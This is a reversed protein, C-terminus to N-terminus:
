QHLRSLWISHLIMHFLDYKVPKTNWLFHKKVERVGRGLELYRQQPISMLIKKLRPVDKEPVTVSFESWNFVQFLPPVFNDSILVPVCDYYIAEIVRPSFVEYGRACICYKSNRMYHVYPSMMTPRNTDSNNMKISRPLPGFIAMKPDKKEWYKLLIPRLSGHMRGAFFALTTTRKHSPKGGINLQPNTAEIIKTTPLSVDKGIEFGKHVDANCLARLSTKM